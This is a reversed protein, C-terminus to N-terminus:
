QKSSNSLTYTAFKFNVKQYPLLSNDRKIEISKLVIIREMSLIKKIFMYVEKYNASFSMTFNYTKLGPNTTSSNNYGAGTGEQTSGMNGMKEMSGMNGMSSNMNNINAGAANEKNQKSGNSIVFSIDRIGLASSIFTLKKMLTYVSKKDEPLEKLMLEKKYKSKALEKETEKAKKSASKINQLYSQKKILEDKLVNITRFEYIFLIVSLMAVGILFFHIKLLIRQRAPM